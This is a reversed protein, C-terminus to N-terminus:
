WNAPQHIGIRVLAARESRYEFVALDQVGCHNKRLRGSTILSKSRGTDPRPSYQISPGPVGIYPAAM